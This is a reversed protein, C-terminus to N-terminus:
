PRSQDAAVPAGDIPVPPHDWLLGPLDVMTFFMGGIDSERITAPPPEPPLPHARLARFIAHLRDEAEQDRQKRAERNAVLRAAQAGTVMDSRRVSSGGNEAPKQASKTRDDSLDRHATDPAVGTAKAIARVTAKPQQSM